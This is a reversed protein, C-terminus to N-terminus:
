GIIRKHYEQSLVRRSASLERDLRAPVTGTSSLSSDSRSSGKGRDCAPGVIVCRNILLSDTIDLDCFQVFTKSGTNPKILRLNKRNTSFHLVPKVVDVKCPGPSYAEPLLAPQQHQQLHGAQIPQEPTGPSAHVDTAAPPHISVSTEQSQLSGPCSVPLPTSSVITPSRGTELLQFSMLRHLRPPKGHDPSCVHRMNSRAQFPQCTKLLRHLM